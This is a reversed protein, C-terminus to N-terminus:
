DGLVPNAVDSLWDGLVNLAVVFLVIILGPFASVWWASSIYPRGDAVMSGWTATSVPVGLGLFSLSAEAIIMYALQITAIVIAAGVANPLIHRSLVRLKTAGISRAAEVFDRKKVTLTEARVVRAYAVWSSLGLVVIVNVLGPGVVAALALALVIFPISLQVDAVRMLLADVAGGYFGSALGLGIGLSGALLVSAAAVVM